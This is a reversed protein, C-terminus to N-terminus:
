KDLERGGYWWFDNNSVPDFYRLENGTNIIPAYDMENSEHILRDATMVIGMFFGHKEVVQLSYHSWTPYMQCKDGDVRSIYKIFIKVTNKLLYAPVNLNSEPTVRSHKNEYPRNFHWPAFTDKNDAFSITAFSTIFFTVIFLVIYNRM